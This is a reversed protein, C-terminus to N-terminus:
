RLPLRWIAKADHASVWVAADDAAVSGSGSRPGYEAMVADTAPDIQILLLGGPQVWVFGGGFAIDGGEIRPGIEITSLVEGDAAVRTVSGDHQNMVWVADDSVTLFRPYAGVGIAAQVAPNEPDIKLLENTGSVTVWLSGLGARVAAAGIPLPWTGVVENEVPDIKVLEHDTSILWVGQEGAAVSGEEQIGGIPLPIRALVAGTAPEIRWIAPEDCAGAWLSEYGVDFALCIGLLETVARRDGTLPDLQVVGPGAATWVFGEAIALWDAAPSITIREAGASEIPPPGSPLVTAEPTTGSPLATPSTIPAPNPSGSCASAVVVILVVISRKM